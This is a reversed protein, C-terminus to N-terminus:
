VRASKKARFDLGNAYRPRNHGIRRTDLKMAFLLLLTDCNAQNVSLGDHRCVYPSLQQAM